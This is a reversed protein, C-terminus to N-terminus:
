KTLNKLILDHIEQIKKDTVRLQPQADGALCGKTHPQVDKVGGPWSAILSLM